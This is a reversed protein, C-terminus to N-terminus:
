GGPLLHAWLTIAPDFIRGLAGPVLFVFLFVLPLTFMRIRLYGPWWSRPLFREIVASGDLPPLPILNFVALLVNAVGIYVLFQVGVSQLTVGAGLQFASLPLLRLVGAAAAALAVNTAPGALSVVLSQNRPHRLRGVNVPVPKAYGFAPAGIFVLIAPLIISGFLDIHPFPNLTLRGANRATDDGFLYAVAGHSVEHLIISPVMAVFLLLSTGRVIHRTLVVYVLVAVLVAAAAQYGRTRPTTAM